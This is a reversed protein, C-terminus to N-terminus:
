KKSKPRGRKTRKANKNTKTKTKVITKIKEELQKTEKSDIVPRMFGNVIIEPHILQKVDDYSALVTKYGLDKHFIKCVDTYVGGKSSISEFPGDLDQPFFTERTIINAKILRRNGKKDPDSFLNNVIMLEIQQM